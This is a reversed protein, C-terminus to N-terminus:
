INDKKAHLFHHKCTNLVYIHKCSNLRLNVNIRHHTDNHMLEDPRPHSNRVVYRGPLDYILMLGNM